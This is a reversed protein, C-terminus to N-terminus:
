YFFPFRLISIYSYSTTASDVGSSEERCDGEIESYRDLIHQWKVRKIKLELIFLNVMNYFMMRIM